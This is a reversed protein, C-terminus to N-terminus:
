IRAQGFNEEERFMKKWFYLIQLQLDEIKPFNLLLISIRLVWLRRQQFSSATQQLVGVEKRASFKKVWSAAPGKYM